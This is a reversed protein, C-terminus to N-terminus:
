TIRNVTLCVSLCVLVLVSYIVTVGQPLLLSCFFLVCFEGTFESFINFSRISHICIILSHKIIERLGRVLYKPTVPIM